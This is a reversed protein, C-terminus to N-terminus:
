ERTALNQFYHLGGGLDEGFAESIIVQYLEYQGAPLTSRTVEISFNGSKDFLGSSRIGKEVCPTVGVECVWASIVGSYSQGSAVQLSMNITVAAGVLYTDSSVSVSVLQIVPVPEVASVATPFLISGFVLVLVSVVSIKYRNKWM